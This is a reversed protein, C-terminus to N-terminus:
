SPETDVDSLHRAALDHFVAANLSFAVRAEEVVETRQEVDWTVSDLLERYRTRFRVPEPIASFIAFALEDVGLDGRQLLKRAIVQGGALDGLYRTYHHAVFGPARPGTLSRIREMYRETAPVPTMTTRWKPGAIADLDITLADLRRLEDFVFAGIVEDSRLRDGAAELERYIFHYQAWLDVIGARPVAGDLLATVFRTTEANTHEDATGERLQLSLPPVTPAEVATM